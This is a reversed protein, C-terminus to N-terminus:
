LEEVPSGDQENEPAPPPSFSSGNYHSGIWSTGADDKVLTDNTDDILIVNSVTGDPQVVAYRSSM